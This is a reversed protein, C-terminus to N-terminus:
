ARPAPRRGPRIDRNEREGSNQDLVRAAARRAYIQDSWDTNLADLLLISLRNARGGSLETRGSGGPEAASPSVKEFTTIAEERNNDFLRLERPTLDEVPSGDARTAQLSVEVVRTRTRFLPQPEGTRPAQAAGIATLVACWLVGMRMASTPGGSAPGACYSTRCGLGRRRGGDDAGRWVRCVAVARARRRGPTLLAAVGVGLRRSSPRRRFRGSRHRRREGRLDPHHEFTRRRDSGPHRDRTEVASRPIRRIGTDRRASVRGRDGRRVRSGPSVM